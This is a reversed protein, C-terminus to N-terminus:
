DRLETQLPNPVFYTLKLFLYHVLSSLKYFVSHVWNSWKNIAVIISCLLGGGVWHSLVIREFRPQFPPEAPRPLAETMAPFWRELLQSGKHKDQIAKGLFFLEAGHTEEELLSARALFSAGILSQPRPKSGTCVSRINVCTMPWGLTLPYLFLNCKKILTSCLWIAFLM